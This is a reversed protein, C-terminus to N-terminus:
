QGRHAQLERVWARFSKVLRTEDMSNRRLLFVQVEALPLTPFHPSQKSEVYCANEALQFVRLTEGDFRWVEPVGLAAYINMRSLSSRGIDLETALDPPPDVTLDIEDKDRVAAEHELYYCRDPEIGRELDERNLTTSGGSQCPMDLEETLAEILRALLGSWREHGHSLTMLELNGRDYTLRVHSEGVLAAISRYGTWNIDRLVFSQERPADVTSMNAKEVGISDLPDALPPL